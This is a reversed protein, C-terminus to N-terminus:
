QVIGRYISLAESLQMLDVHENPQHANTINGPGFVIAPLGAQSFLSAETWFNVPESPQLGLTKVMLELTKVDGDAPL